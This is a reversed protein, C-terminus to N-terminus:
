DSSRKGGLRFTAPEIGALPAMEPSMHGQAMSGFARSLGNVARTCTKLSHQTQSLYNAKIRLLGDVAAEGTMM